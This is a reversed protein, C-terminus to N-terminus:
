KAKKRLGRPTRFLDRFNSFDRRLAVGIGQTTLASKTFYRDTTESYAKLSVSGSPTLLYQIDFDGVFNSSYTPNDRYGFNGNILLRDNFLRGQLLGDVEIDSWGVTGPSVNAGFSWHSKSGLASAIASNLQGTLTSSLFSRMAAGSQQQATYGTESGNGNTYFRGIGLLYIVQRSMDEDTAILQRVMQKEDESINHLDLDFTIQPSAVQGGIALICDARVTKQGFGAGYNLDSLPVGNLTYIAKLDIDGQMPRGSFTISGGPQLTLQKRIVDQLSLRYEGRSVTYRGYMDFSGKNHFSARMAGSGNVALYDGARADTVVKVLLSPNANVTFNLVIDTGSSEPKTKAVETGPEAAIDEGGQAKKGFRVFSNDAATANSGMDYVLTSGKEPTIDMDAQFYGPVGHLRVGGTGIATSYFPMDDNKERDYCLLRTAEIDFDYCLNKLHTHLLSGSAKGTGGRTDHIDFDNFVFAGSRFHVRGGDLRYTVGTADIGASAEASAEGEFDLAKFPGYLCVDGTATGDFGSFIGDMYRRLFLLRTHKAKIDLRLDKNKPSVYGVVETGHGLSDLRMDANLHISGEEADWRALIDSAGMPGDNFTFDPVSLRAHVQPHGSAATFVAEGTAAGGFSVADFNILGLIYSIDIGALRAVISDQRSPSIQGEVSLSQSGHAVCVDRFSVQKGRKVVEGSSVQWVSDGLAFHTPHIDTRFDVTGTRETFFRTTAQVKGGRGKGGREDWGASALLLSDATALSLEVKYPRGAFQRETRALCEYRSGRGHVYVSTEGFDQGSVSLGPSHLTLSSVGDGADVVGQAVAAGEMAADVGLLVRLEDTRKLRAALQWRGAPKEVPKRWLGPLARWAIGQLAATLHKPSLAGHLEADLFDSKVVLRGDDGAGSLTATFNELTYDGRSGGRLQVDRLSVRGQPSGGRLSSLVAEVSGRAHVNGLPTSFGLVAPSVNTVEATLHGGNPKGGVLSMAGDLSLRLNPDEASRLNWRAREGAYSGALEIDHYRYGRYVMQALRAKGVLSKLAGGTMQVRGDAALTVLSPLEPRSLVISPSCESAKVSFDFNDLAGEANVTLRGAETDATLALTSTGRKSYTGDGQLVVSGINNVYQAIDKNKLLPSILTQLSGRPASLRHLELRARSLGATDKVAEADLRVSVNNRRENIALGSLSLTSPTLSFRTSLGLDFRLDRPLRVAHRLDESSLRAERVEGETRLTSSLGGWGRTADYTATLSPVAISSHPLAFEFHSLEARRRDATMNFCLRKICVGSSESLTLSRVRLRLGNESVSKLSVNADLGSVCLHRPNIVGPTRSADWQDYTLKIRRLIVSNVRLNVPKSEKKDESAFADIVFQFNAPEAASRKYAHLEADLLSVTRIVLQRRFLSRLEIKGSVSGAKLMKVKARDFLEVENLSVRNFLGIEVRGVSVKAGLKETLADGALAGLYTQCPRANAVLLLLLYVLLAM